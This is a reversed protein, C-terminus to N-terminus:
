YRFIAAVDAGDPVADPPVAFVTGGHGLTWAAALDLLDEGGPHVRGDEGLIGRLDARTSLFLVDVRGEKAAPLVDTIHTATRGRGAQAEFRAAARRQDGTFYPAAVPQARRALEADSVHDPNGPLGEATMVSHRSVARYIPLLYEVGALVLPARPDPLRETLVADVRQFYRVLEAKADEEGTGRGHFVAPRAGLGAPSTSHYTLIQDTMEEGLAEVLSGPMGALDLRRVEQGQVELLRVQNRSLALVYFTGTELLPLLPRIVFRSGVEVREGMPFPIPVARVFGDALFLALAEEQHRWFDVEEGLPHVPDLLGGATAPSGALQEEARHLLNKFRIRAPEDGAGVPRTPLYISICPGGPTALLTKLDEPLLPQPIIRAPNAIASSM